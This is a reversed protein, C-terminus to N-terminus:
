WDSRKGRQKLVANRILGIAENSYTISLLLLLFPSLMTILKFAGQWLQGADM